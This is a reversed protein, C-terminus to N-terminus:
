RKAARRKKSSSNIALLVVLGLIGGGVAAIVGTNDSAAAPTTAPPKGAPPTQPKPVPASGKPTPKWGGVGSCESPCHLTFPYDGQTMVYACAGCTEEGLNDDEGIGVYGHQDLWQSLRQQIDLIVGPEYTNPIPDTPGSGVSTYPRLGTARHRTDPVYAGVRSPGIELPHLM